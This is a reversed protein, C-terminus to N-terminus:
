RVAHGTRRLGVAAQQAALPVICYATFWYFGPGYTTECHVSQGVGISNKAGVYAAYIAVVFVDATSWKGILNIGDLLAERM